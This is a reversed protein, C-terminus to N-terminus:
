TNIRRNSLVFTCSFEGNCSNMLKWAQPKTSTPRFVRNNTLQHYSIMYFSSIRETSRPIQGMAVDVIFSSNRYNHGSAHRMFSLAINGSGTWFRVDGDHEEVGIKNIVRSNRHNWRLYTIYETNKMACARFPRIEVEPRFDSTFM